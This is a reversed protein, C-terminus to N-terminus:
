RDFPIGAKSDIETRDLCSERAGEAGDCALIDNLLIRGIKPCAIGQFDFLKVITKRAAVPGLEVTVRKQAVGDTDFAFLDVKYSKLAGGRGNDVVMTARCADGAPDLKNLQLKIPAPKEGAAEQAAAPAALALALVGSVLASRM